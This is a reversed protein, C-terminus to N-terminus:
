VARCARLSHARHRNRLVITDSNVFRARRKIRLLKRLELSFDSIDQGFRQATHKKCIISTTWNRFGELNFAVWFPQEINLQEKAHCPFYFALINVPIKSFKRLKRISSHNWKCTRIGAIQEKDVEM